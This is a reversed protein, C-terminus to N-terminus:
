GCRWWVGLTTFLIPIAYAYYGDPETDGFGGMREFSGSWVAREHGREHPEEAGADWGPARTSSSPSRPIPQPHPPYRGPPTRTIAIVTENVAMAHPAGSCAAGRAIGGM